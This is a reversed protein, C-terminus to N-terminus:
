YSIEKRPVVPKIDTLQKITKIPKGIIEMHGRRALHGAVKVFVDLVPFSSVLNEHINVEVIKEPKTGQAILSFIGNDAGIFYHGNLRM